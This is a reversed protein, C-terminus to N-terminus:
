KTHLLDIEKRLKVIESVAKSLADRMPFYLEHIETELRYIRSNVEVIRTLLEKSNLKRRM